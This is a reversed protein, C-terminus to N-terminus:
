MCTLVVFKYHWKLFSIDLMDSQSDTQTIHELIIDPKSDTLFKQNLEM